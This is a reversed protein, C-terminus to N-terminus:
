ACVDASPQRMAIAAEVLRQKADELSVSELEVGYMAYESFVAEAAASLTERAYLPSIRENITNQDLPNM